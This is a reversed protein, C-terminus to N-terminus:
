FAMCSTLGEATFPHPILGCGPNFGMNKGRMPMSRVPAIGAVALKHMIPAFDLDNMSIFAYSSRHPQYFTTKVGQSKTRRDM